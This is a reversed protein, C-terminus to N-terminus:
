RSCRDNICKKNFWNKKCDENTLCIMHESKVCKTNSCEYYIGHKLCDRHRTCEISLLCVRNVCRGSPGCDSDFRCRKVPISRAQQCRDNLCYGRPGCDSDYKCRRNLATSAALTSMCRGNVCRSGNLCDSDIRCAFILQISCFVVFLAISWSPFMMRTQYCWAITHWIHM